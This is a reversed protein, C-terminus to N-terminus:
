WEANSVVTQMCQKCALMINCEMYHKDKSNTGYLSGCLQWLHMIAPWAHFQPSPDAVEDCCSLIYSM